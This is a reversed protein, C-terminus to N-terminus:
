ALKVLGAWPGAIRELTVLLQRITAKNLGHAENIVYARGKNLGMGYYMAQQEIKRVRNPTLEGADLEEINLEDAIEMSLLRAISTKGTGSQGSIWYARGGLGRTKLTNIKDLAKDQGVVDTWAKPRYQEYLNM